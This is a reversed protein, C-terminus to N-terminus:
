RAAREAECRALLAAWDDDVRQQIRAVLKENGPQLLHAFRAQPRLWDEVPV